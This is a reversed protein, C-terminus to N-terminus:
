LEKPKAAPLKQGEQATGIGRQIHVAIQTTTQKSNNSKGKSKTVATAAHIANPFIALTYGSVM